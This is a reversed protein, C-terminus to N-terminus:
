LGDVCFHTPKSCSHYPFGTTPDDAFFEDAFVVVCPPNDCSFGLSKCPPSKCYTGPDYPNCTADKAENACKSKWTAEEQVWTYGDPCGEWTSSACDGTMFDLGEFRVPHFPLLMEQSSIDRPPRIMLRVATCGTAVKMEDDSSTLPHSVGAFRVTIQKM